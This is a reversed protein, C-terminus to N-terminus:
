RRVGAAKLVLDTRYALIAIIVGGFANLVGLQTQDLSVGFVIVLVNLSAQVLAVWLEAPRGLIM